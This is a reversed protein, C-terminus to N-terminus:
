IFGEVFQIARPACSATEITVRIINHGPWVNANRLDQDLIDFEYLATGAKQDRNLLRNGGDQFSAGSIRLAALAEAARYAEAKCTEPDKLAADAFAGSLFLGVFFGSIGQKWKKKLNM